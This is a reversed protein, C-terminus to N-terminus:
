IGCPGNTRTVPSPCSSSPGPLSQCTPLVRSCVSRAWGRALGQAHMAGRPGGRVATAFTTKIGAESSRSGLGLSPTHGAARVCVATACRSSVRM